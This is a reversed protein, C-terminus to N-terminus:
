IEIALHKDKQDPTLDIDIQTLPTGDRIILSLSTLQLIHGNIFSIPNLSVGEPAIKIYTVKPWNYTSGIEPAGCVLLSLRNEHRSLHIKYSVILNM